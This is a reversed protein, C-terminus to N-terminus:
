TRLMDTVCLSVIFSRNRTQRMTRRGRIPWSIIFACHVDSSEVAARRNERNIRPADERAEIRCNVCVLFATRPVRDASFPMLPRYGDIRRRPTAHRPAANAIYLTACLSCLWNDLGVIWFCIPGSALQIPVIYPHISPQEPIVYNRRCICTVRSARALSAKVGLLTISKANINNKEDNINKKKKKKETVPLM